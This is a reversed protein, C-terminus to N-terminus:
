KPGSPAIEVSASLYGSKDKAPGGDSPSHSKIGVAVVAPSVVFGHGVHDEGDFFSVEARLFDYGEIAPAATALEEEDEAELANDNARQDGQPGALIKGVRWTEGARHEIPVRDKEDEGSNETDGADTEAPSRVLEDAVLSV